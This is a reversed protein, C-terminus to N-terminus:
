HARAHNERVARIIEAIDFNVTVWFRGSNIADVTALIMGGAAALGVAWAYGDKGTKYSALFGIGAGAIMAVTQLRANFFQYAIAATGILAIGSLGVTNRLPTNDHLQCTKEWPNLHENFLKALGM